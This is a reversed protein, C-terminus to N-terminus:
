RRAGRALAESRGQPVGVCLEPGDHNPRSLLLHARWASSARVTVVNGLAGRRDRVTPNGSDPEPRPEERCKEPRAKRWSAFSRHQRVRRGSTVSNAGDRRWLVPGASGLESDPHTGMTTAVSHGSGRQGSRTNGASLRGGLGGPPANGGRRREYPSMRWVMGRGAGGTRGDRVPDKCTRALGQQFTARGSMIEVIRTHTSPGRGRRAGRSCVDAEEGLVGTEGWDLRTRRAFIGGCPLKRSSMLKSAATM